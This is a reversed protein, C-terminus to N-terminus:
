KSGWNLFVLLMDNFNVLQDGKAPAIDALSAGNKTHDGWENIVIILDDLNVIGDHNLDAVNYKQDTETQDPRAIDEPRAQDYNVFIEVHTFLPKSLDDPKADDSIIGEVDLFDQVNALDNGNLQPKTEEVPKANGAHVYPLNLTLTALAVISLFTKM